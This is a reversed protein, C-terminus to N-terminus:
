ARSRSDQASARQGADPLADRADRARLDDFIRRYLDEGYSTTQPAGQVLKFTRRGDPLREALLFLAPRGNRESLAHAFEYQHSVFFVKVRRDVLATVVQLAIESGERENTSAFSENFLVLSDPTVQDVIESMRALEEDFKGSRLNPDEERRYHTFIRQAVNASFSEAGVFMGCQLMLQALGIARLFTSKGGQNAGTIVVLEKGDASLENDVVREHMQLALSVDYLRQVAHARDGSPLPQPFCVPEGLQALREHLNLCGVYFGLESRLMSFFGLLHDASQAAANAVLNIGRDKLEALARAGSDDRDPLQYAYVGPEHQEFLRRLWGRASAPGERLVYDDGKAGEGLRASLLVGNHFKLDQLHARLKALYADDLESQLMEFFRAFGRSAFMGGHRDAIARLRALADVLLQLMELSRYLVTNPFRALSGLFTAHEAEMAQVAVAYLERVVAERELADKLVDQRYRITAPETCSALVAARAVRELAADGKSMAAFLTGLGLDAVLAGSWPSAPADPAFDRDEYMLYAKM